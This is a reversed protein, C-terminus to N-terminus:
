PEFFGISSGVWTRDKNYRVGTMIGKSLRVLNNVLVPRAAGEEWVMMMRIEVKAPDDLTPVAPAYRMKRQLIYNSPDEVNAVDEPTPNVIVGMGAFSYLPKLVYNELDDPMAPLQDMYYSKPVYPSDFLPLTHKSIRFFWNPHGAWEVEVDDTLHFESVLDKRALLDDFIIRNFIRKVQINRGNEDTYYLTRGEKKLKTLCVFPIGLMDRTAFFDISTTQKEPEIELLIVNEPNHGGIVARKLIDIYGESDLGNFLHTYHAPITEYHRKYTEALLHQYCFLSPFGQIEVLQPILEGNDGECIGFDVVLFMPHESENAVIQGPQLAGESLQKFDPRLFLSCVDDCAAALADRLASPIFVPTEALNFGPKHRYREEIDKTFAEYKAQTFAANFRSRLEPIM